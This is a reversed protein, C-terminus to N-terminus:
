GQRALVTEGARVHVGPGVAIQATVPVYVTVEGGLPLHGTVQGRAVADELDALVTIPQDLIGPARHWLTSATWAMLLRAGQEQHIGFWLTDNGSATENSTQYRRYRVFGAAPARTIQVDAPTIQITVEYAPARLYRPELVTNVRVVAGDCPAVVLDAGQPVSRPPNRFIWLVGALASLGAGALVLWGPKRQGLWGALGSLGLASLISVVGGAQNLVSIREEPIVVPVLSQTM